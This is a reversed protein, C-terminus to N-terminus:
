GVINEGRSGPQETEKLAIAVDSERRSSDRSTDRERAFARM